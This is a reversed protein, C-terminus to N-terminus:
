PLDKGSGGQESDLYSSDSPCPFSEIVPDRFLYVMSIESLELCQAALDIPTRLM